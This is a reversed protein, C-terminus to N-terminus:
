SCPINGVLLSGFQPFLPQEGSSKQHASLAMHQLHAAGIVSYVAVNTSCYAALSQWLAFRAFAFFLLLLALYKERATGMVIFQYQLPPCYIEVPCVTVLTRM